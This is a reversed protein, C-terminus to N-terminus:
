IARRELGEGNIIEKTMMSPCPCIQAYNAPAAPVLSKSEVDLEVTERHRRTTTGRHRNRLLLKEYSYLESPNCVM